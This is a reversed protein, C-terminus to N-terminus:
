APASRRTSTGSWRASGNPPSRCTASSWRRRGPGGAAATSSRRCPPADGCGSVLVGLAVGVLLSRRDTMMLADEANARTCPSPWLSCRPRPLKAGITEPDNASHVNPHPNVRRRAFGAGVVDRSLPCSAQHSGQGQCLRPSSAHTLAVHFPRETPQQRVGTEPSVEKPVRGAGTQLESNLQSACSTSASSRTDGRRSALKAPCSSSRIQRSSISSTFSGLGGIPSSQTVHRWGPACLQSLRECSASPPTRDPRRVVSECVIM